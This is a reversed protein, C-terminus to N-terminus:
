IAFSTASAHYSNTHPLTQSLTFINKPLINVQNKLETQLVSFLHGLCLCFFTKIDNVFLIYTFCITREYIYILVNIYIVYVSRIGVCKNNM